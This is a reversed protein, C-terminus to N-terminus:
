KFVELKVEKAKFAFIMKTINTFGREILNQEYQKEQIQKGKRKKYITYSFYNKQLLHPFNQINQNNEYLFLKTSTIM